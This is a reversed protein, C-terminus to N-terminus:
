SFEPQIKLLREVSFTRCRRKQVVVEEMKCSTGIFHSEDIRRNRRNEVHSLMTILEELTCPQREVGGRYICTPLSHESSQVISFHPPLSEVFCENLASLILLSGLEPTDLTQVHQSYSTSTHNAGKQESETRESRSLRVFVPVQTLPRKSLFRCNRGLRGPTSLTAGIRFTKESPYEALKEGGTGPSTGAFCPTFDTKLSHHIKGLHTGAGTRERRCPKLPHVHLLPVIPSVGARVPQHTGVKTRIFRPITLSLMIVM